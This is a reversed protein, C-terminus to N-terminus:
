PSEAPSASSINYRDRLGFVLDPDAWFEQRKIEALHQNWLEKERKSRIVGLLDERVEEFAM